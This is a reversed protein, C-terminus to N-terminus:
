SDPLRDGVDRIVDFMAHVDDETTRFNTFCPRLWTEGDITAPSLYIRGDTILAHALKSTFDSYDTVGVPRYQLPVISLDPPHPMTHFDKAGSAVEYTLRALQLNQDIAERLSNAGNAVFAMWLKLARLPRSYELTYDVPHTSTTAHPIYAEEHGFTDRLLTPDKLLVISCAKPVFLWKHADITVSTAREIGAFLRKATDTAAAPAGYAGDVHMWIGFEECIDAIADLPDVAGTLTTGASAIVAIPTVGNNLDDQIAKRLAKPKMRRREDIDVGSMAQSGIGLLEIARKNSYHTDVSGYVRVPTTIGEERSRPLAKHRAAALATINSITGGSTFLGEAPHYGIFEGLWKATQTELLNAAGSDIAVNIDHSAALFDAAAGVELGSSGIYAFFRPRSQSISQDLVGLAQSLTEDMSVGSTPMPGNLLALTDEDIGPQGARAQDFGSWTDSVAEHIRRLLIERQSTDRLTM